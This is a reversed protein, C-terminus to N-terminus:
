LYFRIVLQPLHAQCLLHVNTRNSLKIPHLFHLRETDYYSWPNLREKGWLNKGHIREINREEALGHLTMPVTLELVDDHTDFHQFVFVAEDALSRPLYFVDTVSHVCGDTSNTYNKLNQFFRRLHETSTQPMANISLQLEDLSNKLKTGTKESKDWEWKTGQTQRINGTSCKQTMPAAAWIKRKDLGKFKWVNILTDDGIMFFGSVNLRMQVVRVMCRYGRDGRVVPAEIFSLEQEIDKTQERFKSIDDGCYVIVPFIERHMMELYKVNKYVPWNFMVVLAVDNFVNPKELVLEKTNIQFQTNNCLGSARQVHLRVSKSSLRPGEPSDSIHSKQEVAKFQVPSGLSRSNVKRQVRIPQKYGAHVLDQLWLSTMM